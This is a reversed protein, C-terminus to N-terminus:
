DPWDLLGTLGSILAKYHSLPKLFPNCIDFFKFTKPIVGLVTQIWEGIPVKYNNITVPDSHQSPIPFEEHRLLVEGKKIRKTPLFRPIASVPHSRFM